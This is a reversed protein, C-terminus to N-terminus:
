RVQAADLIRKDGMGGNLCVAGAHVSIERYGWLQTRNEISKGNFIAWAWPQQVTLTKM